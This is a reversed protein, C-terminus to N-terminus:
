GRRGPYFPACMTGGPAQANMISGIVQRAYGPYDPSVMRRYGHLSVPHCGFNYLVALPEGSASDVRLIGVGPDTVGGKIRRNEAINDVQGLGVGFAAEQLNTQAMSVLGVLQSELARTYTEDMEGWHRLFATAPGSHTHSAALMIGDEPFGLEGIRGRLGHVLAPAFGILDATVIVAMRSGDDLVLAQAHLDDLIGVSRGFAYGSIELGIPPTIVIQAVGARCAM